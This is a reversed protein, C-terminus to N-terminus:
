RNGRFTRRSHQAPICDLGNVDSVIASLKILDTLHGDEVTDQPLVGDAKEGLADTEVLADVRDSEESEVAGALAGLLDLFDLAETEGVVLFGVWAADIEEGLEGLRAV